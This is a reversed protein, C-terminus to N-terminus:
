SQSDRTITPVRPPDWVTRLFRAREILNVRMAVLSQLLESRFEDVSRIGNRFYADRSVQRYPFTVRVYARLQEQRKETEPDVSWVVLVATNLSTVRDFQAMLSQYAPILLAWPDVILVVLTNNRDAQEIRSPLDSSAPSISCYMQAETAVQQVVLRIDYDVPPRFPYWSPTGESGYSSVDARVGKMEAQSGVVFVGEVNQPSARNASRDELRTEFANPIEDLSPLNDLLPLPGSEWIYVIREALVSIFEHYVDEHRRLQMLVRLGDESYERPFRLNDIQIRDVASPLKDRLPVWIIPLIAMTEKAQDLALRARQQFVSFEKGCYASNVYAPSILSVLIRSTRLAHEVVENWGEGASIVSPDFFGIRTSRGIRVEVERELDQFFRKLTPDANSHAYSLYFIWSATGTAAPAAVRKPQRLFQNRVELRKAEDLPPFQRVQQDTIYRTLAEMSPLIVAEASSPKDGFTALVEEYAYFPQYLVRVSSWYADRNEPSLHWLMPNFRDRAIENGLELRDKESLEVRMPVPFIKLGPTGDPKQRQKQASEAVAAAGEISQSNLTFCVVLRDPMQVTCVGSTDSVGTRSDILVYDYGAMSIKAAELFLGGGLQKYFNEWNFSNVRTAYDPGQRGASIFDITGPAPFNWELSTAYRLINAHPVYWNDDPKGDGSLAEFAFELVFDIIGESSTLTKDQLFPHLYRHLGPAELDWDLLLVRKGNSALIWAVNALAMSRGTGGKYSYFTIIEPAVPAKTM